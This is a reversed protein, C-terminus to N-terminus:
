IALLTRDLLNQYSSIVRKLVIASVNLIFVAYLQRTGDVTTRVRCVLFHFIVFSAYEIIAFSCSWEVRKLNTFQSHLLDWDLGSAKLCNELFNGAM